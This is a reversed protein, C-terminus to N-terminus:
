LRSRAYIFETVILAIATPITGVPMGFGVLVGVLATGSDVSFDNYYFTFFLFTALSATIVPIGLVRLWSQWQLAVVIVGAALAATGAILANLAEFYFISIYILYTFCGLFLGYKVPVPLAQLSKELLQM